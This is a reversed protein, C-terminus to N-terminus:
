LSLSIRQIVNAKISKLCAALDAAKKLPQKCLVAVETSLCLTLLMFLLEGYITPKIPDEKFKQPERM